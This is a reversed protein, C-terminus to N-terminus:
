NKKAYRFRMGTCKLLWESYPEQCSLRNSLHHLVEGDLFIAVHNLGNGLISMFLLDGNKLKENPELLRFGTKEACKEFMPNKLFEEQTAPREWDKLIIGFEEYYFDKVLSYCDNVGFCYPRGRLPLKFGKPECYGWHGTKPNVIYWPLNSQECSVKDTESAEASTKPHSHVVSVVQGLQEAAIFSKPDLIFSECPNESINNCAFYIKKGKINILVGVSEKPLEIKAHELAKNKWNM